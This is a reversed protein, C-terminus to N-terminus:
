HSLVDRILDCPELQHILDLRSLVVGQSIQLYFQLPSRLDQALFAVIILDKFSGFIVFCDCHFSYHPSLHDILSTHIDKNFFIISSIILFNLTQNKICYNL